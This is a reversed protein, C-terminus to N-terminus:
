QLDSGVIYFDYWEITTGILGAAVVRKISGPTPPATAAAAM